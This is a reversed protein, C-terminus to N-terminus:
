EVISWASSKDWGWSACSIILARPRIVIPSHYSPWPYNVWTMMMPEERDEMMVLTPKGCQRPITQPSNAEAAGKNM